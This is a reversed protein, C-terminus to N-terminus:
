TGVVLSSVSSKEYCASLSGNVVQGGNGIIARHVGGKTTLLFLIRGTKWMCSLTVM